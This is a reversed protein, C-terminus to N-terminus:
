RKMRMISPISVEVCKGTALQFIDTPKPLRSMLARSRHTTIIGLVSAFDTNYAAAPLANDPKM